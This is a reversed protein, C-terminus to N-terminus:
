PLLEPTDEWVIREMVVDPENWGKAEMVAQFIRRFRLEATVTVAGGGSPLAFTYTSRDNGLAPLRNDSVIFSQKWYSVVPQEGTQADRLVKAFARGPLGAQDGGWTPVVPGSQLPLALGQEGEAVVTLILHRGPHDTPAHHGAGSNTVVVTVELGKGVQRVSITMSVANQLLALNTVGLQLHSPIQEPLRPLGGREPLAFYADGTPPMHCNQCTTGAEAYPSALWETYSEYIPTGWFSFQHCPACFRSESIDPLYTDPDPVDDYPGFFINDGPPPRLLRASQAGPVNPYPAETAPDLYVGGVKHCYDCHIGATIVDRVDNMPTTLYGDIGAAPAHCNACNGATGAFDLLYGPGVTATSTLDSGNYLSYFRPNFVASGHANTIWQAVIMPHCNGCAKASTGTLPSTWVYNPYDRRHYLRLTLTVGSITPTVHSGAIYYGDAWATIEIEQGDPLSTLSFRGDPAATTVYDTTRWRVVAGGVPAGDQDVVVGEVTATPAASVSVLLAGLAGCLLGLIGILLLEHRTAM